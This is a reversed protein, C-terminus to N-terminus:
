KCRFNGCYTESSLNSIDSNSTISVDKLACMNGVNNVCTKVNCSLSNCQSNDLTNNSFNNFNSRSIFSSCCTNNRTRAKKGNIAVKNAYCAGNTNHNCNNVNCGVLTM